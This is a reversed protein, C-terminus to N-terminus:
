TVTRSLHQDNWIKIRPRNNTHLQDRFQGMPSWPRNVPENDDTLVIKRGIDRDHTREQSLPSPGPGPDDLLVVNREHDGGERGLGPGPGLRSEHSPLNWALNSAVNSYLSVNAPEPHGLIKQAVFNTTQMGDLWINSAMYPIKLSSNMLWANAKYHNEYSVEASLKDRRVPTMLDKRTFLCNVTMGTPNQIEVVGVSLIDNVMILKCPVGYIKSPLDERSAPGEGPGRTNTVTTVLREDNFNQVFRDNSHEGGRLARLDRDGFGPSRDRQFNIEPSRKIDLQSFSQREFQHQLPNRDNEWVSPRPARAPFYNTQQNFSSQHNFSRNGHHLDNPVNRTLPPQSNLHFRSNNATFQNSFHQNTTPMQGHNWM